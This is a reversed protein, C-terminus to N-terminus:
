LGAKGQRREGPCASPRERPKARSLLEGGTVPSAFVRGLETLLAHQKNQQVLGPLM